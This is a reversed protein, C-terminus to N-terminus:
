KIIKKLFKLFELNDKFLIKLFKQFKQNQLGAPSKTATKWHTFITIALLGQIEEKFIRLTTVFTIFIITPKEKKSNKWPDINRWCCSVSCRKKSSGILLRPMYDKGAFTIQIIHDWCKQLQNASKITSLCPTRYLGINLRCNFYRVVWASCSKISM